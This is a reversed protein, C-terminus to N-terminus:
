DWSNGDTAKNYIDNYWDLAGVIKAKCHGDLYPFNAYGNHRYRPYQACGGWWNIVGPNNDCNGGGHSGTSSGNYAYDCYHDQSYDNWNPNSLWYWLNTPFMFQEGEYTGQEGTEFGMIKDAPSDVKEISEAVSGHGNWFNPFLDARMEYSQYFALPGSPCTFIGGGNVAGYASDKSSSGNEIYPQVEVTWSCNENGYMQGGPFNEDNDQCYELVGLAIQKENNLCMTQRAKERVKAFVPFLIAALIAIIAIVVLLEILTFGRNHKTTLRM